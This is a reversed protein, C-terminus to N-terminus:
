FVSHVETHLTPNQGYNKCLNKASRGALNWAESATIILRSPAEFIRGSFMTWMDVWMTLLM